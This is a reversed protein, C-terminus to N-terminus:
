RSAFFFGRRQQYSPFYDAGFKDAALLIIAVRARAAILGDIFIDAAPPSIANFADLM